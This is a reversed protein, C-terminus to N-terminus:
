PPAPTQAGGIFAPARQAPATASGTPPAPPPVIAGSKSSYLIAPPVLPTDPAPQDAAPAPTADAVPAPGVGAPPATPRLWDFAGARSSVFGVTLLVSCGGAAARVLARSVGAGGSLSM